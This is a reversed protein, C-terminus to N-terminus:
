RYITHTVKRTHNFNHEDSTLYRKEALMVVNM